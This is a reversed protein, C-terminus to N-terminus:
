WIIEFARTRKERNAKLINIFDLAADVGARDIIINAWKNLIDTEYERNMKHYGVTKAVRFEFQLENIVYEFYPMAVCEAEQSIQEQLFEAIHRKIYCAMRLTINDRLVEFNNQDQIVDLCGALEAEAINRVNNYQPM